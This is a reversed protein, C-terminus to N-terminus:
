AADSRFAADLESKRFFLKEGKRIAPLEGKAVLQYIQHRPLGTYKAADAAGRILDDSLM